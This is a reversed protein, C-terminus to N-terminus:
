GVLLRRILMFGAVISPTLFGPSLGNSRSGALPERSRPLSAGRSEPLHRTTTLPDKQCHAIQPDSFVFVSTLQTVQKSARLARETSTVTLLEPAVVTSATPLSTSVCGLTTVPVRRAARPEALEMADLGRDTALRLLPFDVNALAGAGGSMKGSPLGKAASTRGGAALGSALREIPNLASTNTASKPAPPKRNLESTVLGM